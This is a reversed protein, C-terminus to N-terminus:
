SVPAKKREAVAIGMLAFLLAVMQFYYLQEGLILVSLLTGFAPVLNIFLGARNAGITEVGAVYLVQAVLSAFLVTYIVAIWGSGDPWVANGQSIEWILLPISAILAGLSTFAMLTRWNVPPKYRLLITYGAYSLVAGIMLADGYNVQLNILTQLEGQSALLCVGIITLVFGVIQGYSVKTRFLLFNLGFIFMPIGAQIVVTNIASTYNLASYLLANFATFGILGLFLFYTLRVRVLHWDRKVYPVSIAFIIACAFFWRFSTLVM